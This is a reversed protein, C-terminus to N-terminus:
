SDLELELHFEADSKDAQGSHLHTQGLSTHLGPQRPDNALAKQYERAAEDWRSRQFLLDGLFRHGWASDRYLHAGRYAQRASLDLYEHGLRFWAESKDPDVAALERFEKTAARFNEQGLYCSALAQRAERNSPDLKLARELYPVAKGPSGLKLYDMGAIVNPALLNPRQALAKALHRVALEYESLSHYALGLNVEAELLSPDLALVQRFEEAARSFQGQRLAQQGLRFHGAIQEESSQCGAREPAAGFLFAILACSLLSLWIRRRDACRVPTRASATARLSIAEHSADQPNRESCMLFTDPSISASFLRPGPRPM